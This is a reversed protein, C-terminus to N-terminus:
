SLKALHPAPCIEVEPWKSYADVAVLLMKGAVPGAYDIHVWQWLRDPLAWPHLPTKTPANQTMQCACCEKCKEELSQDIKPWWVHSRAVAKMRVIGPHSRHLEEIIKPWLKTPIIVRMGWMLCSDEVFLEERRHWYPKLHEQM